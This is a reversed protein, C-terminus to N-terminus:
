PTLLDPSGTPNGLDDRVVVGGEVDRSFPGSWQLVTKSVWLAHGDKSQLVVPRGHIVPDEDLADKASRLLTASTSMSLSRYM